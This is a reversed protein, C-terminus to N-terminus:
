LYKKSMEYGLFVGGHLPMCRMCALSFGKYFNILGGNNYINNIVQKIQIKENSSQIKTKILDM